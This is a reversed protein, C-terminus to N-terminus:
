AQEMTDLFDKLDQIADLLQEGFETIGEMNYIPEAFQTKALGTWLSREKEVCDAVRRARDILEEVIMDAHRSM